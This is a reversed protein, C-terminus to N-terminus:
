RRSASPPRAPETAGGPQLLDIVTDLKAEVRELRNVSATANSEVTVLRSQQSVDAAKLDQIDRQVTMVWGGIALAGAVVAAGWGALQTVRGIDSHKYAPEEGMPAGNDTDSM